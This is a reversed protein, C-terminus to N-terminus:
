RAQSKAELQLKQELKRGQMRLQISESIFQDLSKVEDINNIHDALKTYYEMVHDDIEANAYAYFRENQRRSAKALDEFYAMGALFAALLITFAWADKKEIAASSTVGYFVACTSRHILTRTRIVCEEVPKRILFSSIEQQIERSLTKAFRKLYQEEQEMSDAGILQAFRLRAANCIAINEIAAEVLPLTRQIVCIATDQKLLEQVSTGEQSSEHGNIHDPSATM